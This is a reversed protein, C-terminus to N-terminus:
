ATTSNVLNRQLLVTDLWRGHKFGVDRLRGADAFGHKRHLALSADDGTDAVVAILQRVGADVARDVLADLLTGGLGRGRAWGALYISTEATHRYAPRTKWPACYAYGAIRGDQEAVLFPLGAGTFARFRRRWEDTDPPDLEFTAVGAVVYGAYIEAIATLDPEDAVRVNAIASDVM